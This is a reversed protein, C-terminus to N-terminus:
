LLSLRVKIDLKACAKKADFNLCAVQEIVYIPHGFIRGLLQVRTIVVLFKEIFGVTNLIKSPHGEKKIM